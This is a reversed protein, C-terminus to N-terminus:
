FVYGFISQKLGLALESQCNSSHKSTLNQWTSKSMGSSLMCQKILCVFAFLFVVVVVVVVVCMM